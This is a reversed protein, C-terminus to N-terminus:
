KKTALFRYGVNYPKYENLEEYWAEILKDYEVENEVGLTTLFRTKFTRFLLGTNDSLLSGIRGAWKGYSAMIEEKKVDTLSEIDNLLDIMHSYITFDINRSTLDM